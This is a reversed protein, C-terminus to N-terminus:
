EIRGGARRRRRSLWLPLARVPALARLWSPEDAAAGVSALKRRAESLKYALGRAMRFHSLHVGVTGLVSEDLEADAGGRVMADCAVAILFRVAGTARLEAEFRSDLPLGLLEHSLLLAAAASRGAGFGAARRYLRETEEPPERSVLAAVDALWKLRSWAHTAGHVCLYAFLEDRALTPVAIGPALEVWQAPSRASVGPLMRANDVLSSHLEVVVGDRRWISHKNRRTWAMVEDFGAEPRPSLCHAGEDLLMRVARAYDAPDLVVDIDSARKVALTGYALRNLAVGKVLRFPLGRAELAVALKHAAAAFALNQRAIGAAVVALATAVEAPVPIEAAKLADHVLGEVRHRAVVKPFLTWDIPEAAAARVAADRAASPPWRCGAAVLRFEPPFPM